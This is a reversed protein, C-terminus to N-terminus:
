AVWLEQVQYKLPAKITFVSSFTKKNLHAPKEVLFNAETDIEQLVDSIDTITQQPSLNSVRIDLLIKRCSGIKSHNGHTTGSMKTNCKMSMNSSITGLDVLYTNKQGNLFIWSTLCDPTIIEFDAGAM